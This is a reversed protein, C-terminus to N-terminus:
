PAPPDGPCGPRPDQSRPGFPRPTGPGEGTDPSIGAQTCCDECSTDNWPFQDCIISGCVIGAANDFFDSPQFASDASDQIYDRISLPLLCWCGDAQLSDRLDAFANDILEKQWSMQASFLPGMVRTMRCNWVCHQHPNEPHLPFVFPLSAAAELYQDILELANTLTAISCLGLPDVYTVPSGNSYQLLNQELYTNWSDRQTWTGLVTHYVRNRVHFLGSPSEYRYGCYLTEWDFSSSTRPTYSPNLFVPQGYAQYACREQVTGATDLVAIVNWNADQLAYLREDLTGNGTTDRDRCVVDDIYRLGLVFQRDPNTSTGVREEVDQWGYTYYFHRTESLTGGSYGNRVTRFRRGDYVNEQVTNGTSDDVLKVPRNWADYTATYSQTPDAPQPVTTMNGNAEYAPTTWAPGATETVDTIENVTNATRSQDLDWTANGNADEQFGAWNGTPDLDWAQAFTRTAIGSKPANLDGREFDTLRHLGDYTYLEDFGGGHNDAVLNERWLRNGARDHGHKIRKVDALGGYDYWRSDKVRGFRDFGTYLDGTDPDTSGALDILTYKVDPQTDDVEVFTKLGLYRYEALHTANVDSDILAAIRGAADDTGGSTGYGYTLVRGNPYTLSTLRITNASGDAYGYQVQPSTLTNVAGSHEQYETVPQGFDNYEFQVQNVISGQGVAANDYSTVTQKLGRVEYTTAIRRVAGDVGTGLTAIRDQTRRGLKDYDYAHVSGNQDTLSTVEQQRNYTFAVRDSSGVSDPYTEYRKLTSAALDSDALTTGYTFTTIQDGTDGNKATLSAIQGDATYTWKTTHDQDAAGTSPDGDVYNEILTIRRGADDFVIRDEKGAPDITQYAEGRNDYGTSTVLVTDSRAPVTSARSLATGGNTGYDATAIQRGVADHYHAQYTVRAKPQAGSPSTLAGTSTANHYRRRVTTQIANGAADYATEVQELVTDGTLSGAEAYTTEDLDYGLYLATQRRLGDYVRKTFLQSGSPSEKIVNGAADFWINDVLSNGVTGTAPNVGYRVRQYVRGREDFKTEERGVLNGGATTDYRESKVVRDLNDYFKREFFDIEGDADTLRNRWDYMFATVRTTLADVHQTAQTLNGDGGALGGDYEYETVLVMNNGPAGGGTPDTETAGSDDTGMYRKTVLGRPDFVEFTITGGPSVTRNRRGMADYGFETQDYNTGASGEGSGPITHYVRQGSLKCCDTYQYTTWRVFDSQSFSDSATLQGSTSARVAAIEELLQGKRDRQVIVVPNVLTDAGSGTHRSGRGIWTQHDLDQYVRWTARRINTATGGIDIAHEPGLEQTIRGHGDHEYDTVLHLGGSAPTTWGAPEDTVQATDVDEIQQVLAGTPLDYKMRTLFGREDKRWIRNGHLDFREIRSASTGSGNQGASVAPLTTTKEEVQVTGSHFTYSFTTEIAGTGDDNRYVTEKSIPYVSQGGASHSAYELQRLLVPTGSTGQKIKEAKLHGQAAGSGTTAYYEALRILGANSKLSVNLDAFSDDYGTVASPGAQQILRGDSDYTRHEIWRDTGAKQEKVLVQGIHNTYVITQNGDPLTEITKRKWHNYGDAHASTTYAFTYTLSGGWVIEKTVRRESDYEFYHEAYQALQNDTASLPDTVAALRVYSQPELVYKLGHAFGKTEGSKWYRYYYVAKDQWASGDFEQQRARKLDGLSGHSESLGYYEYEVRGIEDWVGGNVRRRLTAYQLRGIQDGSPFHGYLFSEVTTDGGSTVSRQIEAIRDDATYATVETTQGGPAKHRKFLGSPNTFQDFDHFAFEEGTPMRLSFEGSVADHTLSSKAGHRGVYGGLGNPDFWLSGRGARVFTISGGADEILYPWQRVLWNFGNGFDYDNSMQNSYIRRHEWPDGFGSASLDAVALQLEGNFYRVPQSSFETGLSGNGTAACFGGDCGGGSPGGASPGGSTEGEDPPCCAPPLECPPEDPPCPPCEGSSSCSCSGSSTTLTLEAASPEPSIYFSDGPVPTSLAMVIVSEPWTCGACPNAATQSDFNLVLQGVLERVCASWAPGSVSGTFFARLNWGGGPAPAALLGIRDLGCCAPFALEWRCQSASRHVLELIFDGEPVRGSASGSPRVGAVSVRVQQPVREHWNGSSSHGSDNGGGDNGESPARTGSEYTESSRNRSEYTESERTRKESRGAATNKIEDMESESKRVESRSKSSQRSESPFQSESASHQTM